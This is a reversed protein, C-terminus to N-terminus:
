AEKRNYIPLSLKKALWAGGLWSAFFPPYLIFLLRMISLTMEAQQPLAWTWIALGFHALLAGGWLFASAKPFFYCLLHLTGVAILFGLWSEVRWFAVIAGNNISLLLSSLLFCVPGTLLLWLTWERWKSSERDAKLQSQQM